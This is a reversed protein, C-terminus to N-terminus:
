VNSFERSYNRPQRTIGIVEAKEKSRLLLIDTATIQPRAQTGHPVGPLRRARRRGVPREWPASRMGSAIFM